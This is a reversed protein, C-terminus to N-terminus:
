QLCWTQHIHEPKKIKCSSNIVNKNNNMSVIYMIKVLYLTTINPPMSELFTLKRNYSLVYEHFYQQYLSILFQPYQNPSSLAIQHYSSWPCQFEVGQWQDGKVNMYYKFVCKNSWVRVHKTGVKGDNVTTDTGILPAFAKLLEHDNIIACTWDLVGHIRAGYLGCEM